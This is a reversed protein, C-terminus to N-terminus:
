HVRRIAAKRAREPSPFCIPPGQPDHLLEEKPLCAWCPMRSIVVQLIAGIWRGPIRGCSLARINSDQIRGDTRELTTVEETLAPPHPPLEHQVFLAFEARCHILDSAQNEKSNRPMRPRYNM